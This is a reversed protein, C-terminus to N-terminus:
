GTVKVSNGRYELIASEYPIKDAKGADFVRVQIKNGNEIGQKAPILDFTFAHVHGAEITGKQGPAAIVEVWNSWNNNQDKVRYEMTFTDTDSASAVKVDFKGDASGEALSTVKVAADDDIAALKAETKGAFSDVVGLVQNKILNGVPTCMAILLIVVIAALIAFGYESLFDKM